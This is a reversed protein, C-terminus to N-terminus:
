ANLTACNCYQIRNCIKMMASDKFCAITSQGNINFGDALSCKLMIIRRININKNNLPFGRPFDGRDSRFAFNEDNPQISDM